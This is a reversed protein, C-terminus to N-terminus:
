RPPRAFCDATRRAMGLLPCQYTTTSMCPRRPDTRALKWTTLLSASLGSGAMRCRCSSNASIASFMAQMTQQQSQGTKNQQEIQNLKATASAAQQAALADAALKDQATQYALMDAAYKNECAHDPTPGTATMISPCNKPPPPSLQATATLSFATILVLPTVFFNKKM